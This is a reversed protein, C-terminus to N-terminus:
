IRRWIMQGDRREPNPDEPDSKIVFGYKQLVSMRKSLMIYDLGSHNALERVTFGCIMKDVADLVVKLEGKIKPIKIAQRSTPSDILRSFIKRDVNDFLTVQERFEPDITDTKM